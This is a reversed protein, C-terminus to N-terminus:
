TWERPKSRTGPRTDPTPATDRRKFPGKVRTNVITIGLFGANVRVAHEYGDRVFVVIPRTRTRKSEATLAILKTSTLNRAGHYEVIVDGRRLGAKRADSKPTFDLIKVGLVPRPLTKKKPKIRKRSQRAKALAAQRLKDKAVAGAVTRQDQGPVWKRTLFDNAFHFPRRPQTYDIVVRFGTNHFALDPRAWGRFACRLNVAGFTWEGGKTVRNEGHGPGEPDIEPTFRYYDEGYHDRVWELVNGAMDYLGFANPEYSGVPAVFKYGDDVYRDRWPYDTNGDAYNAKKGDPLADGWPFQAMPLGGRAAYEWQAETPLKYPLREKATLWDVFARADDYSVMVVPQSDEVRWGPKKWSTGAKRVFTRDERDFVRGGGADEADTVYGTEKVFRRFQGVTTETSSIFFPRSIRVKHFPYENELSIPQEQALTAMAWAIDIQSSGMVFAGAPIRVMKMGLSNTFSQLSKDNTIDILSELATRVTDIPRSGLGGKKSAKKIFGDVLRRAELRRGDAIMKKVREMLQDISLDSPVDAGDRERGSSIKEGPLVGAAVRFGTVDISRNPALGFRFANRAIGAGFAWNGGRVVRTKGKAPGEPDVTLRSDLNRYARSGYWDSCLEWVNGAMDYLWYGNPECSGVPATRAFGDDVTRDAWPVPATRDALNLKSGDPYVDGWPFRKEGQGGRAAYEWQAESPLYYPRGERDGLWKCFADADRHCVVTVPHDDQVEYGPSKWSIGREKVWHKKEEDYVWGWGQTEATTRYGTEEVFRRFQGVTVEYKGMYFPRSIEVEHAPSENRLLNEPVAWDNETRRVEGPSSGMIFKGAPIPVLIMGISNRLEGVRRAEGRPKKAAAAEATELMERLKSVDPPSPIRSAADLARKLSVVALDWEGKKMRTEALAKETEFRREATQEKEEAPEASEPRFRPEKGARNKPREGTNRLGRLYGSVAEYLRSPSIEKLVGPTGQETEASGSGSTHPEAAYGPGIRGPACLLASVVILLAWKTTM